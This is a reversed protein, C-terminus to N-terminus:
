REFPQPQKVRKGLLISRLREFYAGIRQNRFYGRAENQTSAQARPAPITASTKHISSGEWSANVEAMDAEIAPTIRVATTSPRAPNFRISLRSSMQRTPIPYQSTAIRNRSGATASPERALGSNWPSGTERDWICGAKLMRGMNALKKMTAPNPCSSPQVPKRIGLSCARKLANVALTMRAIIAPMQCRGIKM